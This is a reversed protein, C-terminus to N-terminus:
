VPLRKLMQLRSTVANPSWQGKYVSYVSYFLICFVYMSVASFMGLLFLKQPEEGGGAGFWPVQVSPVLSATTGVIGHGHSAASHFVNCLACVWSSLARAECSAGRGPARHVEKREKLDEEWLDKGLCM